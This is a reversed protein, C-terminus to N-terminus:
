KTLNIKKFDIMTYDGFGKCYVTIYIYLNFRCNIM